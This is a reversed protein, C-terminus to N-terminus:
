GKYLEMRYTQKIDPCKQKDVKGLFEALLRTFVRYPPYLGQYVVVKENTQTDIADM